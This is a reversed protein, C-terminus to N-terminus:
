IMHMLWVPKLKCSGCLSIHLHLVFWSAHAVSPSVPDPLVMKSAFCNAFTLALNAFQEFLMLKQNTTMMECFFCM